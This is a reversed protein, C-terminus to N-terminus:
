KPTLRGVAKPKLHPIILLNNKLHILIRKPLILTYLWDNRTTLKNILLNQPIDSTCRMSLSCTSDLPPREKLIVICLCVVNNFYVWRSDTNSSIVIGDREWVFRGPHPGNLTCQLSVQLWSVVKFMWFYPVFQLPLILLIFSFDLFLSRNQIYYLTSNLIASWNFSWPKYQKSSNIM